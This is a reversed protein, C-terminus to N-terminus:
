GDYLKFIYILTDNRKKVDFSDWNVKNYFDNYHDLGKTFTEYDEKLNAVSYIAKESTYKDIQSDKVCGYLFLLLFPCSLLKLIRFM